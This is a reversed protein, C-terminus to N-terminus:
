QAPEENPDTGVLFFGKTRGNRPQDILMDFRLPHDKPVRFPETSPGICHSQELVDPLAPVSFTGGNAQTQEQQPSLPTQYNNEDSRIILSVRFHHLTTPFTHM